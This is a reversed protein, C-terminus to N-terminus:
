LHYVRTLDINPHKAQYKYGLIMLFSTFADADYDDFVDLIADALNQIGTIMATAADMAERAPAPRFVNDQEIPEDYQVKRYDSFQKIEGM